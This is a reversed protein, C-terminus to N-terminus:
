ASEAALSPIKWDLIRIEERTRKEEEEKRIYVNENEVVTSDFGVQARFYKEFIRLLFM